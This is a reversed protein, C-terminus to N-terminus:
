SPYPPQNEPPVGGGKGGGKKGKDMGHPRGKRVKGVGSRAKAEAANQTTGGRESRRAEPQQPQGM